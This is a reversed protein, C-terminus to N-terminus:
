QIITRSRMNQLVAQNLRVSRLLNVTYMKNFDRLNTSTPFFSYGSQNNYISVIFTIMRSKSGEKVENLPITYVFEDGNLQLTAASPARGCGTSSNGDLLYQACLGDRSGGEIGYSRDVNADVAKNVNVDFIISPFAGPATISIVINAGVLEYRGKYVGNSFLVVGKDAAPENAVTVGPDPNFVPPIEAPTELPTEPPNQKVQPSDVIAVATDSGGAITGEDAGKNSNSQTAAFFIIMSVIVLGVLVYPVIKKKPKIVPQPKIVVDEDLTRVLAALAQQYNRRFDIYQIRDLRFPIKCDDKLIPIVRKGNKLAYSVEDLVNPSNVSTKSLVILMSDAAELANQIAIDWVVGGRIDQQDLWVNIGNAKLDTALKDVFDTSDVRSYSIFHKETKL